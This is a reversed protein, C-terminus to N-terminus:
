KGNAAAKIDVLFQKADFGESIEDIALNKLVIGQIDYKKTMAKIDEINKKYAADLYAAADETGYSLASVQPDIVAYVSIKAKNARKILDGLPDIVSFKSDKSMWASTKPYQKSSYLVGDMNRAEFFLTNFSNGQAYNVIGQLEDGLAKVSLDAQSPFDINSNTNILIGRIDGAALAEVALPSNVGLLMLMGLFLALAKKIKKM